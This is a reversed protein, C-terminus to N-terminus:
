LHCIDLFHTKTEINIFSVTHICYFVRPVLHLELFKLIFCCFFIIKLYCQCSPDKLLKTFDHPFNWYNKWHHKVPSLFALEEPCSEATLRCKFSLLCERLSLLTGMRSLFCITQFLLPLLRRHGKSFLAPPKCCRKDVM